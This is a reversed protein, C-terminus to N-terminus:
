LAKARTTLHENEDTRALIRVIWTTGEYFAYGRTHWFLGLAVVLQLAKEPRHESAWGLGARLNDHEQELRFLWTRQGSRQLQHEGRLALQYFYALHNERITDEEGSESLKEKAFERITELMSFRVEYDQGTRTIVLNKDVLSTLIPIPNEVLGPFCIAEVADLTGGSRFVALRAFLTKDHKDLLQYSWEITARLTQQRAPADRPGGILTGLRDQLRQVLRSPSFFKLQSAALELALPLGDVDRCIQIIAPLETENAQFNPQVAQARQIM